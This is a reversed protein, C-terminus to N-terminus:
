NSPGTLAVPVRSSRCDDWRGVGGGHIQAHSPVSPTIGNGDRRGPRAGEHDRERGGNIRAPAHSDMAARVRLRLGPLVSAAVGIPRPM